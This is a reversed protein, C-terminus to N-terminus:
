ALIKLRRHTSGRQFRAIHRFARCGFAECDREVALRLQASRVLAERQELVASLEAHPAHRPIVARFIWSVAM